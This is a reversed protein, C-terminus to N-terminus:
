QLYHGSAGVMSPVGNCLFLLREEAIREEDTVLAHGVYWPQGVEQRQGKFEAQSERVSQDRYDQYVEQEIKVGKASSKGGLM